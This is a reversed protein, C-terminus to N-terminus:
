ASASTRVPRVHVALESDGRTGLETGTHAPTSRARRARWISTALMTAVILPVIPWAILGIRHVVATAAVAIVVGVAVSWDDGVIFDYWFTVFTKLWKM